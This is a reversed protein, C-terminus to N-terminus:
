QYLVSSTKKRHNLCFKISSVTFCIFSISQHKVRVKATNWSYQPTLYFHVFILEEIIIYNVQYKCTSILLLHLQHLGLFRHITMSRTFRSTIIEKHHYSVFLSYTTQHTTHILWEYYLTSCSAVYQVLSFSLNEIIPYDTTILTFTFFVLM